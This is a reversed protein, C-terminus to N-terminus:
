MSCTGVRHPWSRMPQHIMPVTASTHSSSLKTASPRVIGRRSLVGGPAGTRCRGGPVQHDRQIGAQDTEYPAFLYRGADPGNENVTHMDYNGSDFRHAQAPDRAVITMQSFHPSALKYPASEPLTGAGVDGTMPVFRDFSASGAFASSGALVLGIALSLKKLTM